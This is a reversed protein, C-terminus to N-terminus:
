GNADAVRQTPLALLRRFALLGSVYLLTASGAALALRSPTDLLERAAAYWPQEIFNSFGARLGVWLLRSAEAGAWSGVAGLADPHALTWGISAAMSGLVALTLVAAAAFSRPTSVIRRGFRALSRISFPDPIQVSAMVVDAFNAPPALPPLVGLRGVVEWEGRCLDRCADCADLHRAREVPLEGALWADIDDPSLHEIAFHTM